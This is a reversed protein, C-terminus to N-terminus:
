SGGLHGAFDILNLISPVVVVAGMAPLFCLALPITMLVPARQAATQARQRRALRLEEAQVRLVDGLTTGLEEAQAVAAALSLLDPLGSREAVYSLAERRPRGLGVQRLYLAFTEALPGESKETVMAFASDVGVGAEVCTVLLDLGNPLSLVLAKQRSKVRRRLVAYPILISFPIILVAFMFLQTGTIGSASTVLYALLLAGLIVSAAWASLFGGLSWPENAMVLMHDIQRIWNQPLLRAIAAGVRAAGPGLVRKGFGGELRRERTTATSTVLGIRRGVADEKPRLVQWAAMSVSGFALVFILLLM